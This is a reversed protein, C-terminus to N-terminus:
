LKKIYIELKEIIDTDKKGRTKVRYGDKVSFKYAKLFGDPTLTFENM